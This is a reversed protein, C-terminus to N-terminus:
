RLKLSFFLFSSIPHHLCLDIERLKLVCVVSFSLKPIYVCMGLWFELLLCFGRVFSVLQFRWAATVETHPPLPHPLTAYWPGELPCARGGGGPYHLPHRIDPM